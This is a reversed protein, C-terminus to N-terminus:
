HRVNQKRQDAYLKILYFFLAIRSKKIQWEPTAKAEAFARFVITLGYKKCANVYLSLHERDNFTEAITDAIYARKSLREEM